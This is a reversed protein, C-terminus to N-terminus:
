RVVLVSCPSRHVVSHSVSGMFFRSLGRRGHSGVVILDSQKEVVTAEILEAPPGYRVLSEAQYGLDTLQAAAHDTLARGAVMLEERFSGSLLSEEMAYDSDFPVAHFVTVKSREQFPMREFFAVARSSDEIGEIPLLLHQLRPIPTKVILTSCSAHSMVRHSVSGFVLESVRNLGRAGMVILDIKEKAAIDLIIEPPKGKKIKQSLSEVSMTLSGKLRELIEQADRRVEKEVIQPLDKMELWLSQYGVTPSDIVNLMILYECPAFQALAEAAQFSAQSGDVALLIRM